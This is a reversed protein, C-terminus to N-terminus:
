GENSDLGKYLREILAAQKMFFYHDGELKYAKAHPMLSKIAEFCAIPTAEDAAGWFVTAKHKFDRYAPSFDEKVVCKFIEYVLPNLDKADAARLFNARLGVLKTLKALAIKLRVGLPKPLLIGASSLLIIERDLLLSIKGGFSHGAVVDCGPRNNVCLSDMFLRVVAAYGYTDLFIHAPSAGFHPLDLYIHNFDKFSDKFSLQMLDKNSGWGHLFLLNKSAKNDILSYSLHLKSDMYILEKLAM